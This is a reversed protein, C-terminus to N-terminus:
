GAPAMAHTDVGEPAPPQPTADPATDSVRRRSAHDEEPEARRIADTVVRLALDPVVM